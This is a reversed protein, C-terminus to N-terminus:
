KVQAPMLLSSMFFTPISDLGSNILTLRGGLSHCQQQWSALRREFKEVIVNRVQSSRNMAGLPMVLYTTPLSGTPCCMIDAM